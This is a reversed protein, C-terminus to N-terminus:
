ITEAHLEGILNKLQQDDPAKRHWEFINQVLTPCGFGKVTNAVIAKCRTTQKRLARQIAEVDHGPVEQVDCGFAALREAPNEIPLSRVQSRNHDYLITLNNLGVNNAVMISEWVSGENSEGDGVVCFAQQDSKKIKFAM